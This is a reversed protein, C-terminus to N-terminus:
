HPATNTAPSRPGTDVSDVAWAALQPFSVCRLRQKVDTKQEATTDSLDLRGAGVGTSKNLGISPVCPRLSPNRLPLCDGGGMYVRFVLPTVLANSAQTLFKPQQPILSQPSQSPPYNARVLVHITGYICRTAYRLTCRLVVSAAGGICDSVIPYPILIRMYRLQTYNSGFIEAM